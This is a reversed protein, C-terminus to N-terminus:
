FKKIRREEGFVCPITRIGLRRKMTLVTNQESEIQTGFRSYDWFIIKEGHPWLFM